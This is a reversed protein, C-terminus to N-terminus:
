VGLGCGALVVTWRWRGLVWCGIFRGAARLMFFIPLAYAALLMAPGRYGSLLTPMWVGVAAEVGVYLMIVGGFGLAWPNTALALSRKVDVPSAAPRSPKPYAVSLATVILLLCFGGSAVYLWKWSAGQALLLTVLAPGLIAGVGFFGEVINMTSTHAR